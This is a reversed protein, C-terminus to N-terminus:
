PVEKSRKEYEKAILAGRKQIGKAANEFFQKFHKDEKPEAVGTFHGEWLEKPPSGPKKDNELFPQMFYQEVFGEWTKFRELWSKCEEANNSTKEGHVLLWELSYTQTSAENKRDDGSKRQYYNYICMLALDWYDKSPGSGRSQFASPAPIFNGITYVVEMFDTIYSPFQVGTYNDPDSLVIYWPSDEPRQWKGNKAKGCLVSEKLYTDAYRRVFENLTTQWSNMTDGRFRSRIGNKEIEIVFEYGHNWKIEGDPVMTKQFITNTFKSADYDFDFWERQAWKKGIATKVLIDNPERIPRRLYELEREFREKGIAVIDNLEYMRVDFAGLERAELLERIKGGPDVRSDKAM